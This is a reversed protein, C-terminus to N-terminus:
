LSLRVVREQIQETWRKLYSITRYIEQLSDLPLSAARATSGIAPAKQWAVNLARLQEALAATRLQLPQQFLNLRETWELSRAFMRAKLLPSTTRAREALFADVERCLKGAEMFLEMLDAPSREIGAPRTGLELELLHQLRSRPDNLCQYAANLEAYRTNAAQQDIEPVTALRDPHAAASLALFKEKLLGADLWPLRPEGLMAFHDTM